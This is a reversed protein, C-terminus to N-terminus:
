RRNRGDAPHTQAGDRCADIIETVRRQPSAFTAFSDGLYDVIDARERPQLDAIVNVLHLVADRRATFHAFAADLNSDPRCVGRFVRQRVSRIGLLPSVTAYQADVLGSFDFDFPVPTVLGSVSEVLLVNHSHVASWDTNGISYEFLDLIAVEMADGTRPDFPQKGRVTADHRRAFSEFHETFFAYREIPEVRGGTDRYIMRVLRVRLSKSTLANYIRYALYEKLLYQEYDAPRACHTTLPLMRQGAFLTDVTDGTFFVFLAPLTCQVTDARYRGRTRLAVAVRQEAGLANRYSLTAPLDACAERQPNRCLAKSNFALEMAM